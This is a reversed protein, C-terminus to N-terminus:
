FFGLGPSFGGVGLFGVGVVVVSVVGNWRIRGWFGWIIFSEWGGFIWWLLIGVVVGGVGLDVESGGVWRELGFGPTRSQQAPFFNVSFAILLFDGEGGDGCPGIKQHSWKRASLPGM